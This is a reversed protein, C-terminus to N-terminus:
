WQKQLVAQVAKCSYVKTVLQCMGNLSYVKYWCGHVHKQTIREGPYGVCNVMTKKEGLKDCFNSTLSNM